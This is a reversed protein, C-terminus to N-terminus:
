ESHGGWIQGIRLRDAGFHSVTAALQEDNAGRGRNAHCLQSWGEPYPYTIGMAQGMCLRRTGTLEAVAWFWIDDNGPCLRQATEFDALIAEDLSRPPYLIGGAGTLFVRSESTSSTARPWTIYPALGSDDSSIEWGTMGVIAGPNRQAVAGLSELLRSHYVIDDDVTVITVDRMAERTPLLKKYSRTDHPTWLVTLGRRCQQEISAPLGRGPFQSEALVLVVARPPVTQHLMSEVALWVHNIRAPYSTLSVVVTSAPDLSPRKWRAAAMRMVAIREAASNVTSRFYRVAPRVGPVSKLRRRLTAFPRTAMHSFDTSM